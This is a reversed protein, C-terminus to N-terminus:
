SSIKFRSVEEQLGHAAGNLQEAIKNFESLSAATQRAAANLHVMSDSIQRAMQSQQQMGENIRGFRPELAQVQEIVRSQQTSVRVMGNVSQRVHVNFQDMEMVGALVATQMEKVMEAIDVTAMGEQDALRRIERAVVSFGRGYEGAKEAEIAANLSLLNTQDAVKNITTVVTSINKAKEHIASLRSSIRCTADALQRMSTEMSGLQQRGAAALTATGSAMGTVEEVTNALDGSTSSIEKASAVVETTSAAQEVATAELEKASAAIETASSTVQIGSYQVQGVLSSLNRTMTDMAALLQGTEDGADRAAAPKRAAAAAHAGGLSKLSQAATQLDGRAITQAVSTIRSIPDAIRGGILVAAGMMSISLILGAGLSYWLLRGLSSEVALWDNEYDDLYSGPSIIWDWPEFYTYAVLKRRPASEGPLQWDYEDHAVSGKPLQLAEGTIEQVFPQGGAGHLQRRRDAGPPHGAQCRHIARATGRQRRVRGCLGDEGGQHEPNSGPPQDGRQAERGRLAHGGRYPRCRPDTRLRDFVLYRGGLGTRPVDGGQPRCGRGSERHQQSEVGPHLNCDRQGDRGVVNTAIRLMDGQKNMRQFVTCTCGAVNRVDDVVPTRKKGDVNQGLWKGEVMAKPLEVQIETRTLQNVATWPSKQADFTLGGKQNLIMRAVCLNSDVQRQVLANTSECMAYVDRAIQDTNDRILAEVRERVTARIRSKELCIFLSMVVLPLLAASLALGIVKHKLTIKM